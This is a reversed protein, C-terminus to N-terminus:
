NRRAARLAAKYDNPWERINSTARNGDEAAGVTARSTARETLPGQTERPPLRSCGPESSSTTAYTARGAQRPARQSNPADTGGVPAMSRKSFWLDAEMPIVLAPVEVQIWRTAAPTLHTVTCRHSSQISARQVASSIRHFVGTRRGDEASATGLCRRTTTTPQRPSRGDGVPARVGRRVEFRCLALRDRRETSSVRTNPSLGFSEHSQAFSASETPQGWLGFFAQPITRPSM